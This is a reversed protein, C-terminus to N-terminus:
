RAHEKLFERVSGCGQSALGAESGILRDVSTAAPTIGAARLRESEKELAALLRPVNRWECDGAIVSDIRYSADTLQEKWDSLNGTFRQMEIRKGDYISTRAGTPMDCPTSRFPNMVVKYHYGEKFLLIMPDENGLCGRSTSKPGWAPFHFTGSHDTVSELLMLAGPNGHGATLHWDAVVIVGELPEISDADIVSATLAAASYSPNCSALTPSLMVVGLAVSWPAVTVVPRM